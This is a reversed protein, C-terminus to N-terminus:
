GGSRRAGLTEIRFPTIVRLQLAPDLRSDGIVGVINGVKSGLNLAPVDKIYGITRVLGADEVARIRYMLPLRRGDYIASPVLRGVIDFGRADEWVQMGQRGAQGAQQAQSLAADLALRQDRADRRLRLWELRTEIARSIAPSEAHDLGREYEAILEDLADDMAEGGKARVRRMEAELEPWGLWDRAPAETESGAAEPAAASPDLTATAPESAAQAPAPQDPAADAPSEPSPPAMEELLSTDAATPAAAEPAPEPETAGPAEAQPEEPTDVTPPTAQVPEVAPASEPEVAPPAAVAKSESSAADRPQLAALHAAVEEATADRLAALEVYGHPPQDVAPPFAPKVKYGILQGDKSEAKGIITFLTGPKVEGLYLSRWSGPLGSIANPARVRAAASELRLQTESTLVADGVAVFAHQWEPYIIRAWRPSRADMRVVQGAKLDAVKYFTTLEGCRMEADRAVTMWKPEVPEVQAIAPAPSAFIMGLAVLGLLFRSIGSSFLRPALASIVLNMRDM